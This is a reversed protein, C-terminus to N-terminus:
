SVGNRPYTSETVDDDENTPSEEDVVNEPTYMFYGICLFLMAILNAGASIFYIAGPWTQQYYSFTYKYLYNAAFPLGISVISGFGLFLGLEENRVCTGLIFQPIALTVYKLMDLLSVLYLEVITKVFALALSSVATMLSSSIGIKFGRWNFLRRLLIPIAIAGVGCIVTHYTIYITSQNVTFGFAQQTFYVLVSGEASIYSSVLANCILMLWIVGINTRPTFLDRLREFTEALGRGSDACRPEKVFYFLLIVAVAQLAVPVFFYWEFGISTLLVGSISDAVIIGLAISVFYLQLKVIREKPATNSIVLCNAGLKLIEQGFIGGVAAEIMTSIWASSSWSLSAFIYAAAAVVEAVVGSYLLPNSRGRADRWAGFLGVSIGSCVSRVINRTTAIETALAVLEEDHCIFGNIDSPVGRPSCVKQAILNPVASNVLGSALTSIFVPKVVDWASVM